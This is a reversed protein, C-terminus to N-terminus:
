LFSLYLKVGVGGWYLYASLHKRDALVFYPSSKKLFTFTM